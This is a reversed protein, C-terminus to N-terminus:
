PQQNLIREMDSVQDVAKKTSDLSIAVAKLQRKRKVNFPWIGGKAKGRANASANALGTSAADLGSKLRNNAVALRGVVDGLSDLALKGIAERNATKLGARIVVPDEPKLKTNDPLKALTGNKQLAKYYALERERDTLRDATADSVAVSTNYKEQWQQGYLQADRAEKTLKGIITDRRTIERKMSVSDRQWRVSDGALKTEHTRYRGAAGNWWEPRNWLWVVGVGLLTLVLIGGFLKALGWYLDVGFFRAFWLAIM